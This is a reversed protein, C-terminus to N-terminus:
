GKRVSRALRRFFNKIRLNKKRQIENFTVEIEDASDEGRLPVKVIRPEKSM